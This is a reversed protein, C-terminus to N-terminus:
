KFIGSEMMQIMAPGLLVVFLAPFIFLVLPFLMKVPAKMAQEQARQRRVTRMSDSQIRLIRGISVGMQIGQILMSLFSALNHSGARKAVSRLAEQRTKGIKMENLSRAFEEALPGEMREAVKSMAMDLGLGAEVCVVMLDLADPLAREIQQVRKEATQYLWLAPLLVALVLGIVAYLLIKQIGMGLFLSIFLGAGTMIIAAAIVGTLFKRAKLGRPNGARQLTQEVSAELNVPLLAYFYQVIKMELPKVVRLRFPLKLLDDDEGAEQTYRIANLRKKIATASQGAQGAVAYHVLLTLSFFFVFTIAVM